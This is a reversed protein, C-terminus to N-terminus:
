MVWLTINAAFKKCVTSKIAKLKLKRQEPPVFSNVSKFFKISITKLTYFQIIIILYDYNNFAVSLYNLTTSLRLLLTKKTQKQCNNLKVVQPLLSLLKLM